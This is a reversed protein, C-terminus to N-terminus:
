LEEVTVDGDGSAVRLLRDAPSAIPGEVRDAADTTRETLLGDEVTVGGDAAADLSASLTPAVRATVDGREARIVTDGRVSQVEADIPGVGNLNGVGDVNEVIVSGDDTEVTPRGSVGRITVDGEGTQVATDGRVGTLTVDGAGTRVASVAISRPIRLEVSAERDAFRDGTTLRLTGDVYSADVGEPDDERLIANVVANVLAQVTEWVGGEIPVGQVFLDSADDTGILSLDGAAFDVELDTVGTIGVRESVDRGSCGAVGVTGAVGVLAERRTLRRM